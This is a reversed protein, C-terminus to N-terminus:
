DSSILLVVHRREKYILFEKFKLVCEYQYGLDMKQEEMYKLVVMTKNGCSIEVEAFQGKYLEWLLLNLPYSFESINDSTNENGVFGTENCIGGWQILSM